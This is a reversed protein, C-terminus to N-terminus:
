IRLGTPINMEPIDLKLLEQRDKFNTLNFTTMLQKCKDRVGQYKLFSMHGRWWHANDSVRTRSMSPTNSKGKNTKVKNLKKVEDDDSEMGIYEYLKNMKEIVNSKIDEYFVLKVRGPYKAALRIGGEYDLQMKKCLVAANSVFDRVPYGKSETRSNIIAFPNRFLHLIKLNKRKELLKDYSGTTLRLVKTVIHSANRCKQEQKKLCSMKTNVRSKTCARYENWGPGALELHDQVNPVFMNELRSFDCRYMDDLVDLMMGVISKNQPVNKALPVSLRGREKMRNVNAVTGKSCNISGQTSSCVLNDDHYYDWVSYKWLPEYIYFAGKRFGFLQGTFRSGSNMYSNILLNYKVAPVKREPVSVAKTQVITNTSNMLSGIEGFSKIVNGHVVQLNQLTVASQNSFGVLLVTPTLLVIVLFLYKRNLKRQM